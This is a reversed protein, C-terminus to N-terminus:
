GRSAERMAVLALSGQKIVGDVNTQALLKALALMDTRTASPIIVM